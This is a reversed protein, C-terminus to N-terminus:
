ATVSHKDVYEDGHDFAATIESLRTGTSRFVTDNFRDFQHKLAHVARIL